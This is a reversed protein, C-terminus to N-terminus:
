LYIGIPDCFDSKLKGRRAAIRYYVAVGPSQDEHNFKTSLVTDIIQFKGAAGLRCEIIYQTGRKNGNKDWTLTNTGRSLGKVQLDSPIFPVEHSPITDRVKVGLSERLSNTVDPNIQIGAIDLRLDKKVQKLATDKAEVAAKVANKATRVDKDNKQLGALFAKLANIKVQDWGLAAMNVEAATVYNDFWLMFEKIGRPFVSM